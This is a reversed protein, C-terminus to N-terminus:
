KKLQENLAKYFLDTWLTSKGEELGKNYQMNGYTLMLHSLGECFADLNGEPMGHKALLERLENKIIEKRM